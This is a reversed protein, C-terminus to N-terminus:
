FPELTSLACQLGLSFSPSFSLRIFSLRIFEARLRIVVGSKQLHSKLKDDDDTLSEKNWDRCALASRVGIKM